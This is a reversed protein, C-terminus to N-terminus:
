LRLAEVDIGCLLSILRCSVPQNYQSCSEPLVKRCFIGIGSVFLIIGGILLFVSNVFAGTDGTVIGNADFLTFFIFYKATDARGGVNALMQLVYMFAPVGAGVAISYKTDSFVCSAFFCIGSIFLHLFLLSVNLKILETSALEGPFKGNAVVLELGTTYLM